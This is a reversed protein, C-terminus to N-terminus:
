REVRLRDTFLRIVGDNAVCRVTWQFVSRDAALTGDPLEGDWPESADSTRYVEQGDRDVIVMEWADETDLLSHPM